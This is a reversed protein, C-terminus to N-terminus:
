PAIRSELPLAKPTVRVFGDRTAKGSDAFTVAGRVDVYEVM